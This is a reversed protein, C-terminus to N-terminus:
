NKFIEIDRSIEKYRSIQYKHICVFLTTDTYRCIDADRHFVHLYLRYCTLLVDFRYIYICM